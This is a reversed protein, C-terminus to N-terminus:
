FFIVKIMDAVIEKNKYLKQIEKYSLMKDEDPISPPEMEKDALKEQCFLDFFHIKMSYFLGNFAM